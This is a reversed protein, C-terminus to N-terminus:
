KIMKEFEKEKFGLVLSNYDTLIPRFLIQPNEAILKVVEELPFSDLDVKLATLKKSKPNVLAKIDGGALDALKTLEDDNLPEKTLHRYNFEVGQEDLWSKAKRCTM